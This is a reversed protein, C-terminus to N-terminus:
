SFWGHSNDAQATDQNFGNFVGLKDPNYKGGVITDMANKISGNTPTKAKAKAAAVAAGNTGQGTADLFSNLFSASNMGGDIYDLSGGQTIDVPSSPGTASNTGNSSGNIGTFGGSTGGTVDIVNPQYSPDYNM